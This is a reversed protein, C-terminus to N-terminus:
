AFVNRGGSWTPRNQSRGSMRERTRRAAEVAAELDAREEPLFRSRDIIQLSLGKQQAMTRTLTVVLFRGRSKPDVLVPTRHLWIAGIPDGDDSVLLQTPSEDHRVLVMCILSDYVARVRRRAFSRQGSHQPVIRATITSLSRM